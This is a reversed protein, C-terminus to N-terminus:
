QGIRTPDDYFDSVSVEMKNTAEIPRGSADDYGSFKVTAELVLYDYGSLYEEKYWASFLEFEGTVTKKGTPDSQVVIKCPVVIQPLPEGLEDGGIRKFTITAKEIHAQYPTWTPLGPGIEVYQFEASVVDTPVVEIEEAEGTEPDREIGRDSLDSYYPSEISVVRLANERQCSVMTFMAACVLLLVSLNRRM